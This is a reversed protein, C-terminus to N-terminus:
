SGATRAPMAAVEADKMLIASIRAYAEGGDAVEGLVAFLECLLTANGSDLAAQLLPIARAAIDFTRERRLRSAEPFQLLAARPDVDNM